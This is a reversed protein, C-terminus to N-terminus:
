LVIAGSRRKAGLGWCQRGILVAAVEEGAPGGVKEEVLVVPGGVKEEVLVVM